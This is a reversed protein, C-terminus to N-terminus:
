RELEELMTRRFALLDGAETAPDLVVTPDGREGLARKWRPPAADWAAIERTFRESWRGGPPRGDRDAHREATEQDVVALVEPHRDLLAAAWARDRQRIAALAWAGRLGDGMRDGVRRRAVRAPDPGWLALPAGAVLQHLVHAARGTGRPPADEIGDRQLADDLEPDPLRVTLTRLGDHILPQLRAAMRRAYASDPLRSLLAAAQVRVAQSRGDLAAELFPEDDPSLREALVGVFAERDRAGDTAWTSELLARAAPPDSRRLARLVHLRTARTGTEFREQTEGPQAWEWGAQAALWRARRSLVPELTLALDPDAQELLARAHEHPIVRGSRALAELWEGLVGRYPGHLIAGLHAAAAPPCVPRDEPPAPEPLARVRAPLAGADHYVALLAAERLLRREASGHATLGEPLPAPPPTQRATGLLAAQVLANM